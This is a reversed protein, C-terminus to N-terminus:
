FLHGVDRPLFGVSCIVSLCCLSIQKMSSIIMRIIPTPTVIMRMFRGAFHSVGAVGGREPRAVSEADPCRGVFGVDDFTEWAPQEVWLVTRM